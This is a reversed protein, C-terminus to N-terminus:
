AAEKDDCLEGVIRRLDDLGNIPEFLAWGTVRGSGHLHTIGLMDAGLSMVWHGKDDVKVYDRDFAADPYVLRIAIAAFCRDSSSQDFEDPHAEIYALTQRLLAKNVTM